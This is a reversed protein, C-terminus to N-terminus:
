AQEAPFVTASNLYRVFILQADAVTINNDGDVDMAYYALDTARFVNPNLVTYITKVADSVNIVNDDRYTNGYEFCQTAGAQIDLGASAKAALGEDYNVPVIAKYEAEEKNSKYFAYTEGDLTVQLHQTAPDIGTVGTVTLVTYGEQFEFSAAQVNAIVTAVDISTGQAFVHSLPNGKEDTVRFNEPTLVKEAGNGLAKVKFTALLLSDSTIEQGGVSSYGAVKIVDGEMNATFGNEGTVTGVMEWMSPDIVIEAQAGYLTYDEAHDLYLNFTVEGGKQILTSDTELRFIYDERQTYWALVPYYRNESMTNEKFASGLTPALARLAEDTVAYMTSGATTATGGCAITNEDGIYHCNTLTAGKNDLGLLAGTVVNAGSVTGGNYCNTLTAGAVGSRYSGALGGAGYLTSSGSATIDGSNYCDIVTVKYISGALGGVSTGGAVNGMNGSNQLKMDAGAQGALGGANSGTGEAGASMITGRNLCFAITGKANGVIGGYASTGSVTGNNICHTVQADTHSIQGVIGGVNSSGSVAATNVCNTITAAGSVSAAIGAVNSGGKVTGAVTLDQITGTTVYGFLGQNGGTGDINLTITKGAGDFTGKYQTVTYATGIPTWATGSLDIDNMLMGSISGNANRQYDNIQAAFWRMDDVTSLQYVGNTDQSVVPIVTLTGLEKKVTVGNLTYQLNLTKGNDAATLAGPIDVTLNTDTNAYCWGNIGNSFNVYAMTTGLSISQGEQYILSSPVSSTNVIELPVNESVTVTYEYLYPKDGIAGSITVQSNHDALTFAGSKSVTYNTLAERTGDSYNAWIKMAGLTFSQGEVYATTPEGEKVVSEVTATDSGAFVRPIPYGNNIPNEAKDAVWARGDGNILTLFSADKMEAAGKEIIQDSTGSALGSSASGTLWYCNTYTGGAPTAIAPGNGSRVSGINYCNIIQVENGGAIGGIEYGNSVSGANVCNQITGRNWAAGVIGGTGKKQHGIVTAFNICNEILAKGDTQGIKGVIGGVSRDADIYGDVAVNRVVAGAPRVSADESDHCGIRGILGVSEAWSTNSLSAYINYVTHGQGDFVGGWVSNLQTETQNPDLQYAGAIPMFRAGSWTGAAENYVGGMNMDCDLYITRGEFDDIGRYGDNAGGTSANFNMAVAVIKTHNDDGIVTTIDSHYKGNVIAALGMLQAPTTLHFATDTNNYWSVDITAGDWPEGGEPLPTPEDLEAQWYLIPYGNNLANEVSDGAFYGNLRSAAGKLDMESLVTGITVPQTGATTDGASLGQLSYNNSVTSYASDVHGIIPNWNWSHGATIIGINYCYQVTTASDAMGVIGGHWRGGPNGITGTNYCYLVSNPYTSGKDGALGVIGGIGDKGGGNGTIDGTNYCAIIEGYSRGVVGGTHKTGIVNAHNTCAKVLGDPGNQGVLGGVAYISGTNVFVTVNGTVGSVTGNNYGAAGGINDAGATIYAESSGISGSIKFNRLTGTNNGFLGKYGGEADMISLGTIVKGAGDFTGAFAHTADGVPTWAQNNLDIDQALVVMKGGFDNGDNVQQAVWALEAATHITYVDGDPTVETATVGDWANVYAFSATLAVNGEPMVFTYANDNGDVPTFVVEQNTNYTGTLSNALYLYDGNGTVTVTVTKGPAARDMDSSVSGNAIGANVSITHLALGRQWYLVPFGNNLATGSVDEVLLGGLHSAAAKLDDTPLVTVCGNNVDEGKLAASTEQTYCNILKNNASTGYGTGCIMGYSSVSGTEVGGVYPRCSGTNYCNEIKTGSFDSVIGGFHACKGGTNGDIRISYDGTNYCNTINSKCTSVIGGVYTSGSSHGIVTGTNYCADIPAKTSNNFGVIGGTYQYSDIVGTNGNNAVTVQATASDILGIIGGTRGGRNSNACIVTAHNVCKTVASGDMANGVIGGAAGVRAAGNEANGNPTTGGDTFVIANNVCNEVTGGNLSAVVGGAVMKATVCGSVTVNKVTGTVVGFLGQVTGTNGAAADKTGTYVGSVAYNGGDFTGAFANATTADTNGTATGSGIPTWVPAENKLVYQTTQIAYGPAGYKVHDFTQYMGDAALAINGGLSVTKGSFNDQAIGDATGNVIAAFGRLQAATTITFSADTTNYWSTDTEPAVKIVILSVVAKPMSDVIKTRGTLEAESQGFIMRYANLTDCSLDSLVAAPDSTANSAIALAPGFATKNTALVGNTLIDAYYYRDTGMLYEYTYTQAFGDAGTVKLSDGTAFTLGSDSLLQELTVYKDVAGIFPTTETSWGSFYTRPNSNALTMAQARTYTKALVPSSGTQGYVNLDAYSVDLSVTVAESPMTFTYIGESAVTAEVTGGGAKTVTIGNLTTTAAGAAKMAQVFVTAGEKVQGANLYTSDASVNWIADLDTPMTLGYSSADPAVTNELTVTIMVARNPMTFSYSGDGGTVLMTEGAADKATVSKIQKGSEIDTVTVPVMSTEQATADVNVAAIGGFVSSSIDYSQLEPATGGDEWYLAPYGDTGAEFQNGLASLVAAGKLESETAKTVSSTDYALPNNKFVDNWFRYSAHESSQIPFSGELYFCNAYTMTNADTSKNGGSINGAMYIFKSGETMKSTDMTITGKNYSRTIATGEAHGEECGAIGGVARIHGDDYPAVHISGTNYCSDITGNQLKGVIGGLYVKGFSIATIAGTNKCGSISVTGFSGGLIGGVYQYGSIDGKNECNTISATIGDNIRGAIGAVKGSQLTSAGNDTIIGTNKCGEITINGTADGLIGGVQTSDAAYTVAVNSTVGSITGSGVAAVGATDSAGSVAGSVTFDKLTGTSNGFLAHYSGATNTISLGTINKSAGDFTGAFAHTADGIPTWVQNNLDIDQALVVTKGGFDNGDNVQQAVWALEAATHITYVDGDPTVETVTVGDWNADPDIITQTITQSGPLYTGNSLAITYSGASTFVNATDKIIIKGAQTRDLKTASVSVDNVKVSVGTRYTTNAATEDFTLTIEANPYHETSDATVVPAPLRVIRSFAGPAYGTAKVLFSYTGKETVKSSPITLTRNETQITYDGSDLVTYTSQNPIKWTVETINSTWNTWEENSVSDAATFVMDEGLATGSSAAFVPAATPYQLVVTGHDAFGEKAATAKFQFPTAVYDALSKNEITIPSTYLTQPSANGSELTYYISAGETACALTLILNSGSEELTFTPAAVTGQSVLNEPATAMNLQASYTWKYNRNATRTGTRMEQETTPITIRLSSETDLVGDLSGTVEGGNNAIYSSLESIRGAYSEVALVIPTEVGTESAANKADTFYVPNAAASDDTYNADPNGGNTEWDTTWGDAADYIGPYYYRTQFADSAKWAQSYTAADSAMFGLVDDGSYTISNAGTVTSHTKVYGILEPLTIGKGEAYGYTPLNDTYSFYYNQGEYVGSQYGHALEKLTDIPYM